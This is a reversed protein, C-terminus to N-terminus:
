LEIGVGIPRRVMSQPCEVRDRRDLLGATGGAVAQLDAAGERKAAPWSKAEFEDLGGHKAKWNYLTAESVGHTGQAGEAGRHSQKETLWSRRM